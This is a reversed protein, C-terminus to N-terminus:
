PQRGNRPTAAAAAAEHIAQTARVTQDINAEQHAASVFWTEFQSPPLLIGRELMAGHFRGFAATDSEKAAAYDHPADPRFFLTLM